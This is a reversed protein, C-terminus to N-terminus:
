HRFSQLGIQHLPHRSLSPSQSLGTEGGYLTQTSEYVLVLSLEWSKMGSTGSRHKVPRGTCISVTETQYIWIGRVAQCFGNLVGLSCWCSHLHPLLVRWLLRSFGLFFILSSCSPFSWTQSREEMPDPRPCASTFVKCHIPVLQKKSM